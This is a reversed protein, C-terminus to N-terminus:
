HEPDKLNITEDIQKSTISTSQQPLQFRAVVPPTGYSTNVGDTEITVTISPRQQAPSAVAPKPTPRSAAATRQDPKKAARNTAVKPADVSVPPLSNANSQAVAADFPVLLVMEVAIASVGCLARLKLM